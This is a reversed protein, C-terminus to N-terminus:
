PLSADLSWVYYDYADQVTYIDPLDLPPVDVNALAEIFIILQFAQLSDLGIMLCIIM